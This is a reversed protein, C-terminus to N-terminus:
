LAGDASIRAKLDILQDHSDFGWFAQYHNTWVLGGRAGLYTGLIRSGKVGPYFTESQESPKGTWDFEEKWHHKQVVSRVQDVSSGMPAQKLLAAKVSTESEWMTGWQYPNRIILWVTVIVLLFTVIWSTKM